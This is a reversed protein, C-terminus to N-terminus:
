VNFITDRTSKFKGKKEEDEDEDEDTEQRFSKLMYPSDIMSKKKIDEIKVYLM